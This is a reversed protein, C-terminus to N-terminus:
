TKQEYQPTLAADVMKASSKVGVERLTKIAEERLAALSIPDMNKAMADLDKLADVFDSPKSDKNLEGLSWEITEEVTTVPREVGLKSLTKRAKNFDVPETMPEVAKQSYRNIGVSATATILQTLCGSM